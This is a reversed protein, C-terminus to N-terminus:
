QATYSPIEPRRLGVKKVIFYLLIRSTLTNAIKFLNLKTTMDMLSDGVVDTNTGLWNVAEGWAAPLITSDWRTHIYKLDHKTVAASGAFEGIKM